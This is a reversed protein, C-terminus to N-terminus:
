KLTWGLADAKEQFAAETSDLKHYLPRLNRKEDLAERKKIDVGRSLIDRVTKMNEQLGLGEATESVTVPLPSSEVFERIRTTMTKPVVSLGKEGAPPISDDPLPLSDLLRLEAEAKKKRDQTRKISEDLKRIGEELEGRDKKLDSESKDSDVLTQELLSRYFDTDIQHRGISPPGDIPNTTDSM